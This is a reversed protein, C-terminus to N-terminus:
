LQNKVAKLIVQVTNPIPPLKVVWVAISHVIIIYLQLMRALEIVTKGDTGPTGSTTVGTTYESGGGHTGDSTTSFRIPHGSNSSDEQDFTYTGGPQLTITPAYITTNGDFLYKNQNGDSADADVKVIYTRTPSIGGAKWMWAVYPDADGNVDANSGIRFGQNEFEILTTVDTRSAETTTHAVSSQVYTKPGRVTDFLYHHVNADREKIWVWDPSDIGEQPINDDMLALYGTPPNYKFLGVSNDDSETGATFSSDNFSPNAGFNAQVITSSGGFIVIQLPEKSDPSSRDVRGSAGTGAAPDGASSGIAM